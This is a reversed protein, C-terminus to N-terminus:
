AARSQSGMSAFHVTIYESVAARSMYFFIICLKVFLRFPMHSVFPRSTLLQIQVADSRQGLREQDGLASGLAEEGNARHLRKTCLSESTEAAVCLLTLNLKGFCWCPDMRSVICM